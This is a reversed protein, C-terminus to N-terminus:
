IAIDKFNNLVKWVFAKSFFIHEVLQYLMLFLFKLLFLTKQQLYWWVIIKGYDLFNDPKITM